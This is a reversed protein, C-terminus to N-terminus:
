ITNCEVIIKDEFLPLIATDHDYEEFGIVGDELVTKVFFKFPGKKPMNKKLDPLTLKEPLIPIKILYVKNEDITVKVKFLIDIFYMRIREDKNEEESFIENNQDVHRDPSHQYRIDM